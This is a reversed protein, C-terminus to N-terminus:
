AQETLYLLDWEERPRAHANRQASESRKQACYFDVLVAGLVERLAADTQFHDLAQQLSVPLDAAGDAPEWAREIGLLGLGLTAAVTLYPSADGGPLRNEVRRNAPSSAPIRFAALRDDLGWSAKSPSSDTKVIRDYSNDYPAFLAMAGAAHRQLGAIFQRLRPGDRDSDAALFTNRGDALQQLSFHWHMGAGPQDLFPKALYSALFGHRVAIQRSLRKFRFVADAQALPAGPRFNVEFQSLASEHAYGSVPIGMQECADFLDDFYAAFHGAREASDPECGLEQAASDHSARAAVLEHAAGGPRRNLLYFELEPAVTARLGARELRDVVRRLAARPSLENADYERGTLEARLAGFPECLVTAARPRGLQPLLTAADARLDIDQFSAPLIHGYMDPPNEGTLTLGLVVSALKCGGQALFDETSVTKGRANSSFDAVCCEVLRAGTAEVASKLGASSTFGVLEGLFLM